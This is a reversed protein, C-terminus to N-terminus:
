YLCTNPCPTCTIRLPPKTVTPHESDWKSRQMTTIRILIKWVPYVAADSVCLDKWIPKLFHKEPFEFVLSLIVLSRGGSSSGFEVPNIRQSFRTMENPR